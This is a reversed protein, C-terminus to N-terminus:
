LTTVRIRRAHLQRRVGPLSPASFSARGGYRRARGPFNLQHRASSAQITRRAKSGDKSPRAPAVRFDLADQARRLLEANVTASRGHVPSYGTTRSAPRAQLLGADTPSVRGPRPVGRGVHWAAITDRRGPLHVPCPVTRWTASEAAAPAYGLRCVAEAFKGIGRPRGAVAPRVGVTTALCQSPPRRTWGQWQPDGPQPYAATGRIRTTAFSTAGFLSVAAAPFPM